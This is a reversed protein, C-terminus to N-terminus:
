WYWGQGLWIRVVLPLLLLLAAVTPNVKLVKLDRVTDIEVKFYLRLFVSMGVWLLFLELLLFYEHMSTSHPLFQFQGTALQNWDLLLMFSIWLGGLLTPLGIVYLLYRLRNKKLVLHKTFATELAWRSLLASGAILVSVSLFLSIFILESNLYLWGALYGFEEGSAFGPLVCGAFRVFSVTMLWFGLFRLPGALAKLFYFLRFFVLTQILNIVLPATFISIADSREWGNINLFLIKDHYIVPGRNSVSALVASALKGPFYTLTFALVFSLTSYALSVNLYKPVDKSSSKLSKGPNYVMRERDENKIRSLGYGELDEEENIFQSSRSKRSKRSTSKNNM